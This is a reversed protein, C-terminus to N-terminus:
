VPVPYGLTEYIKWAEQKVIRGIMNTTWDDFDSSTPGQHQNISPMSHFVNELWASDCDVKTGTIEVVLNRLAEADSTIDEMRFIRADVAQEEIIANLMNIGHLMHRQEVSLSKPRVGASLALKDVYKLRGWGRYNWFHFLNFQSRLRAMPERVIIACGFKDGLTARLLPIEDRAIGHVDGVAKYDEHDFALVRLYDLSTLQPTRGFLSWARTEYHECRIDIHSDLVRALWKTATCGWSIIAFLHLPLPAASLIRRQEETLSNDQLRESLSSHM